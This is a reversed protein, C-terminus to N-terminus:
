KGLDIPAPNEFVARPLEPHVAIAWDAPKGHDTALMIDGFRKWGAWPLTFKPQEDSAKQFFSWQEVLGKDSSVYVLYRNEPTVGVKDFTLELVEADRGDALKGKGKDALNVGPDLLKYPMFMWYSDNIWMEKAQQLAAKKEPDALEKGGEFVRGAGTGLNMLIVRKESELRLDGTWKDWVHRRGGFFKWSIYRTGDWAAKGGMSQMAREAIAVAHPDREVARALPASVVAALTFAAAPAALASFLRTLKLM